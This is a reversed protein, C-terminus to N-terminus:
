FPPDDPYSYPVVDAFYEDTAILTGDDQRILMGGAVYRDVHEQIEKRRLEEEEEDPTSAQVM